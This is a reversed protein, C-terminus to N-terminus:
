VRLPKWRRAPGFCFMVFGRVQNFLFVQHRQALGFGKIQEFLAVGQGIVQHMRTRSQDHRVNGIGQALLDGFSGVKTSWILWGVITRVRPRHTLQPMWGGVVSGLSSYRVGVEIPPGPRFSLARM